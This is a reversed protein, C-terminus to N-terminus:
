EIIERVSYISRGSAEYYTRIVLEALLGIGMLVVGTIILLMGLTLLPRGGIDQGGIIKIWALYAEIIMGLLTMLGGTLGFFQLPRTAFKQFFLM